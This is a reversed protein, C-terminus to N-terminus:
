RGLEARSRPLRLARGEDAMLVMLDYAKTAAIEGDAVAISMLDVTEYTVIGHFRAFRVAERDDSLWCSGHFQTWERIVFCTEAEGLHQLPADDTGGFSARRIQNIKRIDAPETVEVPEGLWGRRPIDALAPLFRTSATAEYAVAATWRGRGALVSELLDLRKVAAFNCLM